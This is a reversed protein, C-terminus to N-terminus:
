RDLTSRPGRGSWAARDLHQRARRSPDRSSRARGTGAVHDDLDGVRTVSSSSSITASPGSRTTWWGSSRRAGHVVRRLICVRMPGGRPSGGEVIVRSSAPAAVNAKMLCTGSGARDRQAAVRDAGVTAEERGVEGLDLVAQVVARTSTDVMLSSTFRQYGPRRRRRGGLRYGGPGRRCGRSCPRAASSGRARRRAPAAPHQGCRGSPTAGADVGGCRVASATLVVSRLFVVLFFALLCRTSCGHQAAGFRGVRRAQVALQAVRAWYCWWSAFPGGALSWIWAVVLAAAGPVSRAGTAINKTWGQVLARVGDPVHPLQGPRPGRLGPQERAARASRWTRPWRAAFRPIVQGGAAEYRPATSSWCRGYAIRQRGHGRLVSFAGGGM